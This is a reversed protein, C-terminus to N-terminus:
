KKIKIEDTQDFITPNESEVTAPDVLGVAFCGPALGKFSSHKASLTFVNSTIEGKGQRPKLIKKGKVLSLAITDPASFLGGGLMAIKKCTKGLSISVAADAAAPDIPGAVTVVFLISGNDKYRFKVETIDRSPVPGDGTPDVASTKYTKAAATAPVGLLAGALLASACASSVAARRLGISPLSTPVIRVTHFPPTGCGSVGPWHCRALSAAIELARCRGPRVSVATVSAFFAAVLAAGQPSAM